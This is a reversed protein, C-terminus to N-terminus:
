GDPAWDGLRPLVAMAILLVIATTIASDAVNYTYFRWGGIGMDVFDVVSGYQLRDVLNGLAGGLLLGLAVTVLLGRGARAHYWVILGAVAISVIAFWGASQPLMGFLIGSNRWHVIRIWDGLVEFGEGQALNGVIWAKSLQDAVVILAALAAFLTWRARSPRRWARAGDAAGGSAEAGTGDTAADDRGDVAAHDLNPTTM